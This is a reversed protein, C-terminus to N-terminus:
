SAITTTGDERDRREQDCADIFIKVIGDDRSFQIEPLDKTFMRGYPKDVLRTDFVVICGTDTRSRVLRGFGQRFAIVARPVAHKIFWTKPERATIADMVPDDPNPFPLRDIALCSLSEGQVDVGTWLSSVGLLVSHKNSRFYDVLQTRPMDGQKLIEIEHNNVKIPKSAVLYAHVADMVKYSTFLGLMRGDCDKVLDLFREAVEGPFTETDTPSTRMMPVYLLAQESYDFPSSVVCTSADPLGLQDKIFNFTGGTTLTASAIITSRVKSFVHDRLHDATNIMKSKLMAAQRKGGEIYYVLNEDNLEMADKIFSVAKSCTAAMSKAKRKAKPDLDDFESYEDDDPDADLPRTAAMRLLLGEATNLNTCFEDASPAVFRIRIRAKYSPNDRHRKLEDFFLKGFQELKSPVASEPSNRKIFKVVRYMAAYSLQQGFFDRAIEAMEHAEDCILYDYDPLIGAFGQTADKVQTDSFLLHYNTVIIDTDDLAKRARIFFCDTGECRARDCDENNGCVRRWLDPEPVSPLESVDGYRSTNIWNIIHEYQENYEVPLPDDSSRMAEQARASCVYNSRGKALMFSFSPAIAEMGEQPDSMDPRLLKQLTPLDKGVLQEQLAINATAIVIKCKGGNASRIHNIAPLLYAFSKGTGTPGEFLGQGNRAICADIEKALHVQQKRPEYGPIAQPFLENFVHDIFNPDSM